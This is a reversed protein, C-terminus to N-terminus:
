LACRKEDALRALHRQRDRAAEIADDANKYTAIMAPWFFLAAAINTATLGKERRAKEEFDQAERYASRLSECSMNSDGAQRPSVVTPTACGALLSVLCAGIITLKAKTMFKKVPSFIDANFWCNIM